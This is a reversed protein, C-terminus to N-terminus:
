PYDKSPPMHEGEYSAEEAKAQRADYIRVAVIAGLVGGPPGFMLGGIFAGLFAVKLRANM